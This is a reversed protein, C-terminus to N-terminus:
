PCNLLGALSGDVDLRGGWWDLSFWGDNKNITRVFIIKEIKDDFVKLDAKIFFDTEKAYLWHCEEVEEKWLLLTEKDIKDFPIIETITVPMRRSEKIKGNDFYDYTKNLEVDLKMKYNKAKQSTIM